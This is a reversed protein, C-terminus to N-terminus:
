IQLGDLRLFELVCEVVFWILVEFDFDRIVCQMFLGDMVIFLIDILGFVDCFVIFGCQIGSEVLKILFFCQLGIFDWEYVVMVDIDVVVFLQFVVLFMDCCEVYFDVFGEVLVWLQDIFYCYSVMKVVVECYISQQFDM